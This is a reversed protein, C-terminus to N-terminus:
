VRGGRHSVSGEKGVGMARAKVCRGKGKRRVFGRRCRVLKRKGPKVLPRPAGVVVPAAAAAVNGDGVGSTSAPVDMVPQSYLAGCGEGECGPPPDPAAFGGDVRADYVDLQSDSDQPVLSAGTQFFMDQGSEDLGKVVQSITPSEPAVLYVNGESLLGGSGAASEYEYASEQGSLAAPNVGLTLAGGSEFLVTGGDESVYLRTAAEQPEDKGFYAQARIGSEHGNASLTGQPQDDNAGRSVRVLEESAADYEFVQRATATDGPTLDAVSDFVLFQGDPTAQVLRNDTASWDQSDGAALTAVFALRGAPFEADREFVYLNDGGPTPASGEGNAGTLVGKAVFYVHSGDESVRAVGQVEPTGSGGSVRVIKGDPAGSSSPPNDFDYEYLNMGEAGALLEQETLFLVKSGDESAGAFEADGRVSENCASCALNAGVAPESVPVTQQGGVRAYLEVAEPGEGVEGSDSCPGKEATFFVVGGDGSVANYVDNSERSGLYTNCSSILRGAPLARGENEGPVVTSGDSVGVLEPRSQGVGVFEYLSTKVAGSITTDGPWALGLERGDHIEFLVRSLDGSAGKFESEAFSAFRQYEGSSPGVVASPPLVPGVKVMVGDAERVYLSEGAISESGARAIWLTSALDTSGALWYSTPFAPSAPMIAAVTWGVGSRSLEYTPGNTSDSGSEVGAFGGLAQVILSSGDGSVAPVLLETGDKFVPTAEEFARCDPLYSRFGPSSVTEAPCGLENADGVALAGAVWVLCCLLVVLVVVLLRGGRGSRWVGRWM